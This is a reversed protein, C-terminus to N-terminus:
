GVYFQAVEEKTSICKSISIAKSIGMSVKEDAKEGMCVTAHGFTRAIVLPLPGSYFAFMQSAVMGIRKARWGCTQMADM